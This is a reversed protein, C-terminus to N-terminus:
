PLSSQENWVKYFHLNDRELNLNGSVRKNKNKREYMKDSQGTFICHEHGPRVVTAM